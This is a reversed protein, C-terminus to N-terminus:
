TLIDIYQPDFHSLDVDTLDVTQDKLNHWCDSLFKIKGDTIYSHCTHHGQPNSQLLSPTVTPKETDGNWKHVEPSFVHEYGCGPCFYHCHVTGNWYKIKVVKM